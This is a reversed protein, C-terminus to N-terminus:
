RGERADLETRAQSALQHLLRLAAQHEPTQAARLADVAAGLYGAERLLEFDAESPEDLLNQLRPELHLLREAARALAGELATRAAISLTGAVNLQVLHATAPELSTLWADLREVDALTAVQEERVLWSLTTVRVKEVRPAAGPGDLEVLLVQGPDKEKFRTPEPAGSYWVRAHYEFTGHWDGLAVYDFGKALLARADILNHSPKEDDGEAKFDLVGGHALAVRVGEGPARAPLESTPDLLTHRKMLPCPFLAGDALPVPTPDLCVRVHPQAKLRRLVCDATGADHNGPMLVVPVPAFAALAENASHLEFPGVHNDDFVDGCVVVADVKREHALAAIRRVTEFRALRARAGKDGPIFNLRLGLQWDATHLLRM